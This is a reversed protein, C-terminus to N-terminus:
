PFICCDLLEEVRHSKLAVEFSEIEICDYSHRHEPEHYLVINFLPYWYRYETDWRSVLNWCACLRCKVGHCWDGIWLLVLFLFLYLFLLFIYLEIARESDIRHWIIWTVHVATYQIGVSEFSEFTAFANGDAVWRLSWFDLDVGCDVSDSEWWYGNPQAPWEMRVTCWMLLPPYGRRETGWHSMNM